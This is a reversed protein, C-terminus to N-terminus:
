TTGYTQLVAPRPGLLYPERGTAACVQDQEGAVPDPSLDHPRPHLHQVGTSQACSVTSLERDGLSWARRVGQRRVLGAKSAGRPKVDRVSTREAVPASPLASASAGSSSSYGRGDSIEHGSHVVPPLPLGPVPHTRRKRSSGVFCSGVRPELNSRAGARRDVSGCPSWRTMKRCGDAQYLAVAELWCRDWERCGGVIARNGPRRAGDTPKHLHGWRPEIVHRPGPRATHQPQQLLDACRIVQGLDPTRLAPRVPV